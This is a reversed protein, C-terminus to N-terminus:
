NGLLKETIYQPAVPKSFYYGQIEDCGQNRKIAYQITRNLKNSTAEQKYLFDQAGAQISVISLEKNEPGTLVVIPVNPLIQQIHIVTDLETADSTNFNLLIVDFTKTNKKLTQSNIVHTIKSNFSCEKLSKIIQEADTVNKEILLTRLTEPKTKNM